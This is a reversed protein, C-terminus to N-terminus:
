PNTPIPVGGCGGPTGVTLGNDYVYRWQAVSNCCFYRNGNPYGPIRYGQYNPACSITRFTPAWHWRRPCDQPPLICTPVVGHDAMADAAQWPSYTYQSTASQSSAAAIIACAVINEWVKM